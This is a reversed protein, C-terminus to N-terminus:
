GFTHNNLKNAVIFKEFNLYTLLNYLSRWTM